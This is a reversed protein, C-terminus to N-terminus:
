EPGELIGDVKKLENVSERLSAFLAQQREPAQRGFSGAFVPAEVLRLLLDWLPSDGQFIHTYNGHGLITAISAVDDQVQALNSEAKHGALAELALRNELQAAQSEKLARVAELQDAIAKEIRDAQRVMEATAKVIEADRQEIQAIAETNLADIETESKIVDAVVKKELQEQKSIILLNAAAQILNKGVRDLIIETVRKQAVSEGELYM